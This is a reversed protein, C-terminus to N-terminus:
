ASLHQYQTDRARQLQQQISNWQRSKSAQDAQFARNLGAQDAQFNLQKDLMGEQWKMLDEQSPGDLGFLGGTLGGLIKNVGSSVGSLLGEEASGVLKDVFAM